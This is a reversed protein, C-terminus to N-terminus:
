RTLGPHVRDVVATVMRSVASEDLELADAIEADTRGEGVYALVRRDVGAAEGEGLRGTVRATTAPDLLRRGGAVARVVDGLATASLQKVVCGDAGAVVAAQSAQEESSSTLMVVRSRPCRNRVARSATIGSSGRLRLDMVVVDPQLAEASTVADAADGAEGCVEIDGGSELLRRVAHRVAAHDDVILVRIRPSLTM